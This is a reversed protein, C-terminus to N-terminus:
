RVLRDPEMMSKCGADVAKKRTAAADDVKIYIKRLSFGHDIAGPRM